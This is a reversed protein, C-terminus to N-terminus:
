ATTLARASPQSLAELAGNDPVHQFYPLACKLIQIDPDIEKAISELVMINTLLTAFEGQLKMNHERLIDLMGVLLQVGEIDFISKTDLVSFLRRLEAKFEGFQGELIKEGGFNSLGYILSACKESNGQVVNKLFSTFNLRDDESLRIVMGVDILTIKVRDGCKRIMERIAQEEEEAVEYLKRLSEEMFSSRVRAALQRGKDCCWDWVEGLFTPQHETVQVLINGGHCDAHIFNNKMLMEFFANTGLRAMYANLPHRNTEYYTVPKGEVFSEILISDRSESEYATPFRIEKNGNFHHNFTRLNDKEM